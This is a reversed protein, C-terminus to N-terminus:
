IISPLITQKAGSMWHTWGHDKPIDESKMEAWHLDDLEEQWSVIIKGRKPRTEIPQWKRM